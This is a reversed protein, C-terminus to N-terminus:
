ASRVAAVAAFPVVELYGAGEGSVAVEVFDSGVRGLRGQLLTSDTRHLVSAARMEALGRLVSALGLRATLPRASAVVGRDALGRLSAVAPLRVVWERQGTDLLCWGDGARRLEGEVTGVGTVALRLPLGLSGHLRSVLDLQSYEARVAEAVEIDREVLALGEAQQELDDFLGALGDDWRM